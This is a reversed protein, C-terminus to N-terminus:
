NKSLVVEAVRASAGKTGLNTRIVSLEDAIRSRLENDDLITVAEEALRRPTVRSQLLEPVIRKGAVINALSINKIKVM